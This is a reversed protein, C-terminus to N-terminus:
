VRPSVVAQSFLHSLLSSGGYQKVHIIDHNVHDCLDLRGRRCCPWVWVKLLAFFVMTHAAHRKSKPSEGFSVLHSIKGTEEIALVASALASAFRKASYHQNAEALHRAANKAVAWVAEDAVTM